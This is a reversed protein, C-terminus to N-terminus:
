MYNNSYCYIPPNAHGASYKYIFLSKRYIMFLYLITCKLRLISEDDCIKNLVKKTDYLLIICFIM